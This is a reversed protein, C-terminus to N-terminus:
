KIHKYDSISACQWIFKHANRNNSDQKVAQILLLFKSNSLYQTLSMNDTPMGISVNVASM